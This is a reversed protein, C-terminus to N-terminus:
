FFGMEETEEIPCFGPKLAANHVLFDIGGYHAITQQILAERQDAKGVHCAIGTAELGDARFQAAVEDVSEQKRSSIVVKAGHEALGRAIAEGIGKSSGTVVAVKEKLNFLPKIKEM